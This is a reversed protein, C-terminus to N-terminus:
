YNPFYKSFHLMQEEPASAGNKMINEFFKCKLPAQTSYLTLLIMEQKAPEYLYIVIGVGAGHMHIELRIPVKLQFHVKEEFSLRQHSVIAM